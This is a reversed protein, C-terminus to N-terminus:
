AAAVGAQLARDALALQRRTIDSPSEDDLWEHGGWESCFTGTFGTGALATGLARIPASVRSDGDDLDWFKLHFGGTLPLVPRLDDVTSRGFRILLNMYLTHVDPPVAGSRLYAVVEDATEPERWSKALADLLQSPVGAVALRRLYSPPLSPMLMSIDILLRIRPDDFEAIADIAPASASGPHQQGQIEEYLTLDLDDLVPRIRQLLATGAQGIPLRAGTAGLRAAAQLQPLLFGYREDDDRRRTPSAWDDINAGVISVRGGASELESRFADLEEGALVPFSRWLQGLELEITDAVGSRVVDLAIEAADREADIIEPTWNFVSASLTWGTPLAANM